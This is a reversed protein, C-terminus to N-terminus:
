PLYDFLTKGELRTTTGYAAQLATQTQSFQSIVKAIDADEIGSQVKTNNVVQSDTADGISTITQINGGLVSRSNVVGALATDLDGIQRSLNSVVDAQPQVGFVEVLNGANTAGPSPADKVQFSGAGTLILKQAHNDFTASVGTTATQANIATVVNQITSAPTFTFTTGNPDLGSAITFSASGTSDTQLPTAFNASSLLSSTAPAVPTGILSTSPKNIAAASADVVAGSSLTDRLTILTQFVDPSGDTSQYNFAQQITLSTQITQGNNLQQSQANLNGNFTVGSVPQGSTLLPKQQPNATGAFVYKGAYQTNAIGIAQQLLGDVQNAIAQQQAPSLANSAGQVALSRAKQMVSSLSSLASDVTTLEASISQVNSSTQNGQAIATRVSLDQAIQTPDDSPVNVQKGSSLTAGYQQQQSVLDDISASQNNYITSTAIRM